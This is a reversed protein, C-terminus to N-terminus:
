KLLERVARALDAPKFPKGIFAIEPDSLRYRSLVDEPHGSMYLVKLTPIEKILIEALDKGSMGPMIVDTVVAQITGEHKRCIELAREGGEAVLVQDTEPTAAALEVARSITLLPQGWSLGDNTDLGSSQDFARNSSSSESSDVGFPVTNEM